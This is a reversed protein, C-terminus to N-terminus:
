MSLSGSPEHNRVAYTHLASPDSARSRGAPMSRGLGAFFASYSIGSRSAHSRQWRPRMSLTSPKSAILRAAGPAVTFPAAGPVVSAPMLLMSEVVGCAGRTMGPSAVACAASPQSWALQPIGHWLVLSLAFAFGVPSWIRRVTAVSLLTAAVSVIVVAALWPERMKLGGAGSGFGPTGVM